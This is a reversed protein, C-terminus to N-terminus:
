EARVCYARAISLMAPVKVLGVALSSSVWLCQEGSFASYTLSNSTTTPLWRWLWEDRTPRPPLQTWGSCRGASCGGASNGEALGRSPHGLAREDDQRPSGPLICPTCGQPASTYTNVTNRDIIHMDSIYRCITQAEALLLEVAATQHDLAARTERPKDFVWLAVDSKEVLVGCAKTTLLLDLNRISGFLRDLFGLTRESDEGVHLVELVDRQRVHDEDM